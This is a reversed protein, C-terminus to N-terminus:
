NENRSTWKKIYTKIQAQSLEFVDEMSYKMYWDTTMRMTEEFTLCPRWKLLHMAKSIDLLLLNAEHIQDKTSVDRWEGKGAFRIIHEVVTQVNHIDHLHPGFNWAGAFLEPNEMLRAGLMLYGSLPELVHQWPRIAAPNRLDITKTNGLAKFIDPVLRYDAWDGGGIVNGARASAIAPKGKGTFFSRRYASIVLEAAGKSASYPDHGGMPENERYGWMWEKNEYCKDTTIMVAAKVSPTLRIAELVNVTGHTNVAFTEAPTKYSEIVIPQAALHFIIEPEIKNLAYNLGDLDRIDGRLDTIKSEIGSAKFIGNEHLPDLAYGYVDAGLMNLWISLWGGKFGTHGTILVKRNKYYNLIKM